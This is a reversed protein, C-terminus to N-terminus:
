RQGAIHFKFKLHSQRLLRHIVCILVFNNLKFFKLDNTILANIERLHTYNM